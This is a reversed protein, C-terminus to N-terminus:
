ESAKKFTNVFVDVPQAGSIGYKNDIVFFPVGRVGIAQAELVDTQVAQVYRPERQAREADEIGLRDAIGKLVEPDAVNEGKSFHAEFLLEEAADGKGEEKALQLFRHAALTNVIKANEFDLRIGKEAGASQLSSFSGALAEPSMGKAERLYTITSVPDTGLSPNLQYSKWEVEAEGGWIRLAEELHKKGLYCFPCMVDSWIEIKM